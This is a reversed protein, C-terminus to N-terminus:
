SAPLGLLCRLLMMSSRVDQFGKFIIESQWADILRVMRATLEQLSISIYSSSHIEETKCWYSQSFWSGDRCAKGEESTNWSHDIRFCRTWIYKRHVLNFYLYEAM